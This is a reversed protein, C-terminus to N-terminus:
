SRTAEQLDDDAAAAATVETPVLPAPVPVPAEWHDRRCIGRAACYECATGQGLPWLPAGERLRSLDHGIGEVLRRASHELDPHPIEQLRRGDELPLYAARLTEAPAEAQMLAAYFALQTEEAPTRVRQRLAAASGTKYDILELTPPEGAVRDVRDIIGHMAIGEWAPPETSVEREGDLWRVGKAEREDLWDLYSEILREFSALYPLFEADDWGQTAQADRAARRLQERAQERTAGAERRSHFRLLVGHLWDGYDRKDPVTELEEVSQLQLMRLAFFRYPCARLMECASASLREPLLTPAAPGSAYVPQATVWRPVRVESAALPPLARGEAQAEEEERAWLALLRELLPSPLLREEVDNLRHLLTLRPLRTLQRMALWQGELAVTQTPLGFVEAQAPTLLPHLGAPAGWHTADAGPFVAAAFPRLVAHSLPTVVVQAAQPPAAPVFSAHELAQDVWSLFLSLDPLGAGSALADFAPDPASLRLVALVQEGAPDRALVERLGWAELAQGFLVLWRPLPLAASVPFGARLDLLDQWLPLAAAPLRGPQVQDLRRWNRRRLVAELAHVEAQRGPVLKLADVVEDLTAQPRLLRLWAMVLAASSTTSLKWGTEDQVAVQQRALLAQVRRVLVRDQAVLVVPAEGAALHHLVQAASRQAEEEFDECVALRRLAPRGPLPPEAVPAGTAEEAEEGTGVPESELAAVGDLDVWGCPAQLSAAQLVAQALPDVGGAQVMVWASVEATVADEDDQFLVDTRPTPQLAAWELALQALARERGAPGGTSELAERCRQWHAERLAPPVLSAARAMGHATQVLASLAHDLALPDAGRTFSASRLLGLATLRDTAMDFSILGAGAVSAPAWGGALTQPTEIRPLWGGVWRSWAQRLLPLHRVQPLLVVADRPAADVSGLWGAVSEAVGKWVETVSPSVATWVIPAIPFM